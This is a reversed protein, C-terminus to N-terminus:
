TKAVSCINSLTEAKVQHASLQEVLFNESACDDKESTEGQFVNNNPTFVRYVPGV